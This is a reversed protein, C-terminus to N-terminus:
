YRPFFPDALNDTSYNIGHLLYPLEITRGTRIFQRIMEDVIPNIGSYCVQGLRAYLPTLRGGKGGKIRVLFISTRMLM